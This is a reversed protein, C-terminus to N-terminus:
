NRQLFHIRFLTLQAKCYPSISDIYYVESCRPHIALRVQLSPLFVFDWSTFLFTVIVSGNDDFLGGYVDALFIYAFLCLSIFNMKEGQQDGFINGQHLKM